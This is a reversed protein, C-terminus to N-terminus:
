GHPTLELIQPNTLDDVQRAEQDVGRSIVTCVDV